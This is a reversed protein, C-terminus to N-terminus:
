LRSWADEGAPGEFLSGQRNESTSVRSRSSPSMGFSALFRNVDEAARRGVVWHHSYTLNGNPTRVM